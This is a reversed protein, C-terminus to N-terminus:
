NLHKEQFKREPGLIKFPGNGPPTNWTEEFPVPKHGSPRVFLLTYDDSSDLVGIDIFVFFKDRGLYLLDIAEIFDIM